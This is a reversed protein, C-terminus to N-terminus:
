ISIWDKKYVMQVFCKFILVSQSVSDKHTFSFKQFTELGITEDSVTKPLIWVNNEGDTEISIEFMQQSDRRFLFFQDNMEPSIDRYLAIPQSSNTMFLCMDSAKATTLCLLMLKLCSIKVEEITFMGLSIWQVLLEHGIICVSRTRITRGNM